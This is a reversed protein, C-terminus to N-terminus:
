HAPGYATAVAEAAAGIDVKQGQRALAAGYAIVNALVPAFAARAGAHDLRVLRDSIAGFGPTLTVGLEAATAILAEADVGEPM